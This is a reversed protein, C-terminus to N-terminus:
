RCGLRLAKGCAFEEGQVSDLCIRCIASDGEGLSGERSAESGSCAGCAAAEAPQASAAGRHEGGDEVQAQIVVRREACRPSRRLEGRGELGWTGSAGEMEGVGPGEEEWGGEGGGRVVQEDRSGRGNGPIITVVVVPGGSGGFRGGGTDRAVVAAAAQAAAAGRGKDPTSSIRGDGGGRGAGLMRTVSASLFQAEAKSCSTSPM